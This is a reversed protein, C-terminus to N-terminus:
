HLDNYGKQCLAIITEGHIQFEEARLSGIAVWRPEGASGDEVEEDGILGEGMPRCLFYFHLGQYARGSPNYYFFDEEFHVLKGIEIEIGAEERVERALTEAMREGAEIGGGPLHYKGTADMKVLLVQSEKLIIGYAAPRLIVQDRPIQRIVGNLDICDVLRMM